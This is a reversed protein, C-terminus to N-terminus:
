NPSFPADTAHMPTHVANFALYLFFPENRHRDVFSDAERALVDTLYGDIQEVQRGRVIPSQAKDESIFYDHSGTLFGYFEDFGRNLPHFREDTGLHWKGIVGTKYGAARFRDAITTEAISLGRVEVPGAHPNFEHGFRQQYRGTLLGARTPSCYTGSVYGSTFRVGGAALADINPTPIEPSGHLSIDAYGLDDALIILVNPRAPPLAARANPGIAIALTLLVSATRVFLRFM